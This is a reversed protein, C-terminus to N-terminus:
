FEKLHNVLLCLTKKQECARFSKKCRTTSKATCKLCQHSKSLTEHVVLIISGVKDSSTGPCLCLLHHHEPHRCPANQSTSNSVLWFRHNFLMNTEAEQNAKLFCIIIHVYLWNAGKFLSLRVCNSLPLEDLSRSVGLAKRFLHGTASRFICTHLIIVQCGKQTGNLALCHEETKQHVKWRHIKDKDGQGLNHHTKTGQCDKTQCSLNYVQKYINAKPFKHPLEFAVIKIWKQQAFDYKKGPYSQRPQSSVKSILM